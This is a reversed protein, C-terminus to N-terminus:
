MIERTYKQSAMNKNMLRTAEGGRPFPLVTNDPNQFDDQVFEFYHEEPNRYGYSKTTRSPMGRIMSTEIDADRVDSDYSTNLLQGPELGSFDNSKSFNRGAPSNNNNNQYDFFPMMQYSNTNLDKKNNSSIKPVVVKNDFDMDAKESFNPEVYDGYRNEMMQQNNDSKFVSYDSAAMSQDYSSFTGLDSRSKDFSPVNLGHEHKTINPTTSTPRSCCSGSCSDSSRSSRHSRSSRSSRHSRNSRDRGVSSGHPRPGHKKSRHNSTPGNPGATLDSIIYKNRPDPDIRYQSSFKNYKEIGPDIKPDNSPNFKTDSLDFGTACQTNQANQMSQLDRADMMMDQQVDMRSFNDYVGEDNDSAFMGWNEPTDMKDKKLVPVRSDGDRYSKSPFYKKDVKRDKKFGTYKDNQYIDKKGSLFSRLITLDRNGIQFEEELSICPEINNESYFKKKKIYEQLRPELMIGGDCRMNKLADVLDLKNPYV